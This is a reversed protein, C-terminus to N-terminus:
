ASTIYLVSFSMGGSDVDSTLDVLVSDSASVYLDMGSANYQIDVMHVKGTFNTSSLNGIGGVFDGSLGSNLVRLITGTSNLYFNGVTSSKGINDTSGIVDGNWRSILTAKITNANTGDEISVIVSRMVRGATGDGKIESGIAVSNFTLGTGILNIAGTTNLTIGGSGTDITAGGASAYMSISSYRDSGAGIGLAVTNSTSPLMSMTTGALDCSMKTYRTDGQFAIGAPTTGHGTLIYTRAIPATGGGIQSFNITKNTLIQTGDITVIDGASSGGVSVGDLQNLETSTATLNVAENVKPTTLTKNTLTQTANITAIDGASSGGVTVGTLQNIETYSATVAHLKALDASTATGVTLVGGSLIIKDNGSYGLTVVGPETISLIANVSADWAKFGESDLTICSALPSITETITTSKPAYIYNGNSDFTNDIWELWQSIRWWAWNFLKPDANTGSIHGALQTPADPITYKSASDDLIWNLQVAPKTFGM